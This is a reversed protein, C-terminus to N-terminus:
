WRQSVAWRPAAVFRRLPDPKAVRDVQLPREEGQLQAFCVRRGRLTLSPGALQDRFRASVSGRQFSVEVRGNLEMQLPEAQLYLSLHAAAIKHGKGVAQGFEDHDALHLLAECQFQDKLGNIARGGAILDPERDADGFPPAAPLIVDAHFLETSEEAKAKECDGALAPDIHHRLWRWPLRPAVGLPARADDLLM